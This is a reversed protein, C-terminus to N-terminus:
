FHEEDDGCGFGERAKWELMKGRMASEGGVLTGGGRRKREM